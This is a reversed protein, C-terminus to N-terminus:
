VNIISVTSYIIIKFMISENISNVSFLYSEYYSAFKGQQLCCKNQKTM